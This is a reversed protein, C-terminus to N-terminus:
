IQFVAKEGDSMLCCLQPPPLPPAPSSTPCLHAQCHTGSTWTWPGEVMVSWPVWRPWWYGELGSRWRTLGRGEIRGVRTGWKWTVGKAELEFDHFVKLCHCDHHSALRTDLRLRWKFGKSGTWELTKDLHMHYSKQGWDVLDDRDLRRKQKNERM